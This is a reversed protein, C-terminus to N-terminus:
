RIIGKAASSQYVRRRPAARPSRWRTLGVLLLGHGINLCGGIPDNLVDLMDDDALALRYLQGHQAQQALAVDEDLVHGTHALGHQGLRQGFRDAALELADLERGVHQGTVHGAHGDKVLACALELKAGAGDVGLDDEDILDVAGRGLRLRGQQLRHLLALHGDVAVGVQEVHGEHHQRRLVRDLVFAREGQGLGLEVAEHQADAEAVGALVLLDLNEVPLLVGVRDVRQLLDHVNILQQRRLLRHLVDVDIRQHLLVDDVDHALRTLM